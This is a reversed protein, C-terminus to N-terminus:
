RSWLQWRCRAQWHRRFEWLAGDPAQTCGETLEISLWPVLMVGIPVVLDGMCVRLQLDAARETGRAGTALVANDQAEFCERLHRSMM